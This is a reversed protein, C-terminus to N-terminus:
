VPSHVCKIMNQGFECSSFQEVMYFGHLLGCRRVFPIFGIAARLGRSQGARRLFLVFCLDAAILLLSRRGKSRPAAARPATLSKSSLHLKGCHSLKKLPGNEIKVSFPASKQGFLAAPETCSACFLSAGWGPRMGLAEQRVRVPSM